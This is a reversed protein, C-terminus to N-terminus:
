QVNRQVVGQQWSLTGGVEEFVTTYRLHVLGLFNYCMPAAYRSVMSGGACPFASHLITPLPAHSLHM